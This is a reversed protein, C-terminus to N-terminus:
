SADNFLCTEEWMGDIKEKQAPKCCEEAEAPNIHLHKGSACYWHYVEIGGVSVWKGNPDINPTGLETFLEQVIGCDRM